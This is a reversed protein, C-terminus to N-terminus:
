GLLKKRLLDAFCEFAFDLLADGTTFTKGSGQWYVNLERDFKPLFEFDGNVEPERNYDGKLFLRVTFKCREVSNTAQAEFSLDMVMRGVGEVFTRDLGSVQDSVRLKFDDCEKSLAETRLRAGAIIDRAVDTVQRVGDTTRALANAAKQHKWDADLSSFKEKWAAERLSRDRDVLGVARKIENVVRAMGQDTSIGLYGALIPSFGRVEDESVGKWIPLIVKRETIELGFLGDLEARPWRKAFFHQSLVVIGYDCSRLGEDIKKLLPDGLTLEYESYWVKFDSRLAEALPRVFYEQDESAHSLFLTIM